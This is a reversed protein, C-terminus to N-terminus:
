KSIYYKVHPNACKPIVQEMMFCAYNLIVFIRNWSHNDLWVGNHKLFPQRTFSRKTTCLGDVSILLPPYSIVEIIFNLTLPCNPSHVVRTFVLQYQDLAQVKLTGTGVLNLKDM